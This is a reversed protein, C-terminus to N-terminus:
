KTTYVQYQPKGHEQGGWPVYACGHSGVVKGPIIAGQHEARAVFLPEGSCDQGGQVAGPPIQGSSADVWVGQGGPYGGQPPAQFGPASFAAAIPASPRPDTSKLFTQQILCNINLM